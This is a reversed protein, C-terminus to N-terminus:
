NKFALTFLPAVFTDTSCPSSKLHVLTSLGSGGLPVALLDSEDSDDQCALSAAFLQKKCQADGAPNLLLRRTGSRATGPESRAQAASGQPVAAGSGSGDVETVSM